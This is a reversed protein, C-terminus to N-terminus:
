AAIVPNIEPLWRALAAAYGSERFALLLRIRSFEPGSRDRGFFGPKKGWRPWSVGGKRLFACGSAPSRAAWRKLRYFSM